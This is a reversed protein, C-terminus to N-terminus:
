CAIDRDLMREQVMEALADPDFPKRIFFTDAGFGHGNVYNRTAHGSMFIIRIEPDFSQLERALKIGNMRPMAIDSLLLDVEGEHARYVEVAHVGDEAAIVNFGIDELVMRALERVQALDDVVLATRIQELKPLAGAGAEAVTKAPEEIASVLPLYITFTTGRGLETDVDVWGGSQEVMGHVMSLGLGTGLGMERTSYFPEFIRQVTEQDMGTGTDTVYVTAYKGALSVLNPKGWRGEVEVLRSGIVLLGGNPMAHCANIALNLVAQSLQTPDVFTSAAEDAVEMNLIVNDNILAPLLTRMDGLVDAVSVVAPKLEQKRGFALLQNTLAAALNSAKIVESLCNEVREPEKSFMMAMQSFGNIATLLNNFEHAVEGTLKGMADLKQAHLLEMQTRKRETLDRIVMVFARQEGGTMEGMSLEAPFAKGDARWGELELSGLKSREKESGDFRARYDSYPGRSEETLLTIFDSGVVRQPDYRFIKMAASNFSVIAGESDVAIIADQVTEVINQVHRENRQAAQRAEDAAVLLGNAKRTERILLTILVAGGGMVGLLLIAVITQTRLTSFYNDVAQAQEGLNVRQSMRHLPAAHAAIRGRISRYAETDGPTLSSISPEVSRLTQGIARVVTVDGGLSTLREGVPGGEYINLRSWLIDLRLLVDDREVGKAGLAYRDLTDVFRWFEFETQAASWYTLDHRQERNEQLEVVLKGLGVLASVSFAVVATLLLAYRRFKSTPM